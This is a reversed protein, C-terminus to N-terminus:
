RGFLSFGTNGFLLFSACLHSFVHIRIDLFDDERFLLELLADCLEAFLDRFIVLVHLLRDVADADELAGDDEVRVEHAVDIQRDM